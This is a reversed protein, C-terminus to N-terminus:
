RRLAVSPLWMLVLASHSPSEDSNARVNHFRGGSKIGGAVTMVGLGHRRDVAFAGEYKRGSPWAFVGWGELRNAEWQGSYQAGDAWSNVGFGQRQDDM